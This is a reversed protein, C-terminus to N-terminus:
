NLFVLHSVPALRAERLLAQPHGPIAAIGELVMSDSTLTGTKDFCCVAVQEVLPRRTTLTLTPMQDDRVKSQSITLPDLVLNLGLEFMLNSTRVNIM